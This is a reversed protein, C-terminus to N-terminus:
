ALLMCSNLILLPLRFIPLFSLFIYIVYVGTAPRANNQRSAFGEFESRTAEYDMLQAKLLYDDLSTPPGHRAYLAKNYRTRHYFSSVNSSMHFLGKNPHKWLDEMDQESLFKKLSGIEPTGVGSGQESGFGFAGGLKHGYWYNPPVWDYPGLMKMGSFPLNDPYGLEGASAIIPNPWDMKNLADVYIHSARNDPWYDSGVLFGLISPHTQMMAAEHLMSYNAIWYDHDDWKVGDAEDNYSWGEWKDCCEWGAMIMVGMEDAIEYLEPQEQKGELRLTNLGMDLMYSFIRRMRDSDWRMFMDPSLGGGLVLFPSGNVTFATDNHTNLHSTVHRIGFKVTPAIDTTKGSVSIKASAAYLPQDGWQAPWWVQPNSVTATASVTQVENAGLKFSQSIPIKTGDPTQVTGSLIGTTANSDYNTLDTRVTVTVKSVGVTTFDTVVRLPSMSVSGTQQFEVNRWVGTGNDPPYPNWDVFGMAFDRLYNTPYAKILVCNAGSKLLKTLDYRQGGYSGAQFDSSAIQVGNVFIDAKSTIGNTKLFYRQGSAPNVTFEERYLWGASFLSYDPITNLNDSFWLTTDNYVNNEILGAMATTRSSVRYWSNVNAGPLSLTSLNSPAHQVAQMSWGPIIASDGPSSVIPQYSSDSARANNQLAIAPCFVTLLAAFASFQVM